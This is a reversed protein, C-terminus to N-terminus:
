FYQKKCINCMGLKLFSAKIAVSIYPFVDVQSPPSPPYPSPVWFLLELRKEFVPPLYFHPWVHHRIGKNLGLTMLCCLAKLVLTTKFHCLHCTSPVFHPKPIASIFLVPCLIHNQFSMFSLYPACLTTKSHCLHCLPRKRCTNAPTEYSNNKLWWSTEYDSTYM